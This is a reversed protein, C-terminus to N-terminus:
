VCLNKREIFQQLEQYNKNNKIYNYFNKPTCNKLNNDNSFYFLADCFQINKQFSNFCLTGRFIRIEVTENEDSINVATHRNYNNIKDKAKAILVSNNSDSIDAWSSLANRNRQSIGIIFNDNNYIFKQFKYLHMTKFMNLSMHIHIGCSTTNYSRFGSNKLNQLLDDFYQRNDKWWNFTFPHSVLEFGYELSADAKCFIIDENEINNYIFQDISNFKKINEVELEIGFYLCKDTKDKIKNKYFTLHPLYTYNHINYDDEEEEEEIADYCSPCLYYDNHETLENTFYCENCYDCYSTDNEFCSSCIIVDNVCEQDGDQIIDDCRECFVCEQKCDDCIFVANGEYYQLSGDSKKTENNCFKCVCFEQEENNPM